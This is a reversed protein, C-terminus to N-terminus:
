SETLELIECFLDIGRHNVPHQFTFTLWAVRLCGARRDKQSQRQANRLSIKREHCSLGASAGPATQLELGGVEM